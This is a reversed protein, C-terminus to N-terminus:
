STACLCPCFEVDLSGFLVFERFSGDILVELGDGLCVLLPIAAGREIDLM